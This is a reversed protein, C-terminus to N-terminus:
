RKQFLTFVGSCVRDSFGAAPPHPHAFALVAAAAPPLAGACDARDGSGDWGGGM